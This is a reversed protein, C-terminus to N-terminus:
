SDGQLANSPVIMYLEDCQSFHSVPAFSMSQLENGPLQIILVSNFLKDNHNKRYNYGILIHNKSLEVNVM